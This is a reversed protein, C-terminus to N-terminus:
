VIDRDVLEELTQRKRIIKYSGDKVLVEPALPRTNYNSAMTAGYAGASRIVVLDGQKM